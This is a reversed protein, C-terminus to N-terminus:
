GIASASFLLSRNVESNFEQSSVDPDAVINQLVIHKSPTEMVTKGALLDTSMKDSANAEPNKESSSIKAKKKAADVSEAANLNQAAARTKSM